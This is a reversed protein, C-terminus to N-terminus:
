GATADPGSDAAAGALKLLVGNPLCAATDGARHMHGAHVCVKDPCDSSVFAVSHDAYTEVVVSPLGPPSIARERGDLVLTDVLVGHVYIEARLVDGERDPGAVAWLGLGTATLLVLGAVFLDFRKIRRRRAM